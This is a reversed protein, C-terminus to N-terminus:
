HAGRSGNGREGYRGPVFHAQPVRTVPHASVRIDTEYIRSLNEDNFVESTAGDLWIRGKKMFILRQCYLAAMNLDHMVNVVTVGQSSLHALLDFIEVKRAADLHSTAEDLLLIPARQALARAIAVVQAEGGSTEAISREALHLSNTQEMAALAIDMDDKSYGGWRGLYPYRGMLAVWLCKYPFSVETKQAVCAVNRALEIQHFEHLDVGNIRIRGGMIPIARSLALLLTTKGSGNPGLIGTVSGPEIDFSVEDLVKSGRYGCALEKVEIL